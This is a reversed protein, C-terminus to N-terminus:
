PILCFEVGSGEMDEGVGLRWLIVTSDALWSNAEM